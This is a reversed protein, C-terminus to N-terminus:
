YTSYGSTTTTESTGSGSGGSGGSGSGSGSSVAATTKMVHWTGGFGQLGEGAADSASSDGSFRYLPLGKAAVLKTSGPGDVVTLAVGMPASPTTAGAALKLPPWLSLCQGTCALAKGSSDTLTYLTKGDPDALINGLTPNKKVSVTLTGGSPATTTSASSAATTTTSGGAGTDTKNNDDGCAVMLGGLALVAAGTMLLRRGVTTRM